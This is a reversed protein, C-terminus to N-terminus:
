HDPFEGLSILLLRQQVRHENNMDLLRATGRGCATRGRITGDQIDFHDRWTMTRPNFLGVVGGTDIDVTSLNTGKRLNCRPCAWALNLKSDDIRHVNAIIHEVHFPLDHAYDPSHCYECRGGARAQVFERTEADM